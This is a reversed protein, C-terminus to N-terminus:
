LGCVRRCGQGEVNPLAAAYKRGDKPDAAESMIELLPMLVFAREPIRPHPVTLEPSDICQNGFLIIDADLSRPGNRIELARNRGFAAEVEHVFDLLTFPSEAWFGSVAMNYFDSQNEVYMPKTLYVSSTKLAEIRRSLSECAARLIELPEMGEYPKNSGLALVIETKGV